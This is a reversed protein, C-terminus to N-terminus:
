LSRWVDVPSRVPSITDQGIRDTSGGRRHSWRRLLRNYAWLFDLCKSKAWLRKKRSLHSLNLPIKQIMYQIRKRTNRLMNDKIMGVNLISCSVIFGILSQAISLIMLKCPACPLVVLAVNLNTSVTSNKVKRWYTPFPVSITTGAAVNGPGCSVNGNSCTISESSVLSTRHLRTCAGAGNVWIYWSLQRLRNEKTNPSLFRPM